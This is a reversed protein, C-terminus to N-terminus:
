VHYNGKAKIKKDKSYILVDAQHLANRLPTANIVFLLPCLLRKFSGLMVYIFVLKKNNSFCYKTYDIAKAAV